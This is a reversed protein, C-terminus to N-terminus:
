SCKSIFSSKEVIRVVKHTEMYYNLTLTIIRISSYDPGSMPNMM